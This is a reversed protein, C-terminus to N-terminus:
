EPSLNCFHYDIFFCKMRLVHSCYLCKTFPALCCLPSACDDNVDFPMDSLSPFNIEPVEFGGLRWACLWMPRFSEHQFRNYIRSHLKLVDNHKDVCFDFLFSNEIVRMASDKWQRFCFLDLPQILSTFGAPFIQLNIEKGPLKYLESDKQGDWSDMYLVCKELLPTIRCFSTTSVSGFALNLIGMEKLAFPNPDPNLGQSGRLLIPAM